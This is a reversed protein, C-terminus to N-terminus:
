RNLLLRRTLRTVRLLLNSRLRTLARGISCVLIRAPRSRTRYRLLVVLLVIVMWSKLLAFVISLKRVFGFRVVRPWWRWVSGRAVFRITFPSRCLRVDKKLLLTVIKRRCLRSSVFLTTRAFVLRPTIPRSNKRRCM